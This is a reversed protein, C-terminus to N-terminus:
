KYQRCPFSSCDVTILTTVLCFGSGKNSCKIYQSCSTKCHSQCTRTINLKCQIYNFLHEPLDSYPLTIYPDLFLFFYSLSSLIESLFVLCSSLFFVRSQTWPILPIRSPSFVHSHSLFFVQPSQVYFGLHTCRSGTM